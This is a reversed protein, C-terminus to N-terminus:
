WLSNRVEPDWFSFFPIIFENGLNKIVISSSSDGLGNRNGSERQNYATLHFGAALPIHEALSAKLSRLACNCTCRGVWPALLTPVWTIFMRVLTHAWFSKDGFIFHKAQLNILLAMAVPTRAPLKDVLILLYQVLQLMISFSEWRNKWQVKALATQNEALVGKRVEISGSSCSPTCSIKDIIM